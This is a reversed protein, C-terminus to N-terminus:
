LASGSEMDAGGLEGIFEDTRTQGTAANLMDIYTQTSIGFAGFDCKILTDLGALRNQEGVLIEAKQETVYKGVTKGKYPAGGHEFGIMFGRQHCAGRDSTAYALGMGPAGRVAWGPFELGKVHLAYDASSNGLQEAARKVGQGLFKGLENEQLAISTILYEAGKTSGFELLGKEPPNILGNEVAEFAFAIVGGTSMSDM